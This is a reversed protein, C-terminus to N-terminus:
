IRLHRDQQRGSSCRRTLMISFSWSATRPGRDAPTDWWRSFARQLQLQMGMKGREAHVDLHHTRCGLRIDSLSIVPDAVTRGSQNYIRHVKQFTHCGIQPLSLKGGSLLNDGRSHSGSRGKPTRSATTM